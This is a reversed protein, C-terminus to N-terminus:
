PQYRWDVKGGYAMTEHVLAFLDPDYHQLAERTGIPHAADDPAADQGLADFYALVGEAWYAARDHVAATGKWKGASVTNEYIAKLRQDFRLDLRQVRLEYQQVNRDRQEWNPDVPRTGTLHYLAKALGRIVQNDGVNPVKPNALVNEEGVVLLKTERTYDLTRALADFGKAEKLSPFEPLDALRENRGLVVLKVGDAILAKLLDHRYALLKRITDNAKLLAADSAQRGLVTFERAWTFKTYYPDIKFKAPPATVNPLPRLFRYRWDQDPKLNFATRALEYGEPDYAKLQERTGIPGHNWNNIRNCDFYAQAIEAWYEGANSGAYTDKFLGKLRANQYARNRRENWTADVARLTGDITHCFEHVAISEDDYRDLPLSLLNEEGFSTPRGGTGRVRENQYAPNPHNRYEPMDTYVQDKGIVILYMRNKVMAEIVDPRGALMHSVISHTRQLALDAVEDSAVVPLGRVEVHKKYFQRAADRDRERVMDFFPEPPATVPPHDAAANTQSQAGCLGAGWLWVVAAFWALQVM